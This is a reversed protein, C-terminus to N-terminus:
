DPEVLAPGDGRPDDREPGADPRRHDHYRAIEVHSGGTPAVISLSSVAPHRRFRWHHNSNSQCLTRTAASLRIGGLPRISSVTVLLRGVIPMVRRRSRSNRITM